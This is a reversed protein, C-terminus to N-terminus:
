EGPVLHPTTARCNPILVNRRPFRCGIVAKMVYVDASMATHMALQLLFRAANQSKRSKRSLYRIRVIGDNCKSLRPKSTESDQRLYFFCFKENAMCNCWLGRSMRFACIMNSFKQGVYCDLIPATWIEPRRALSLRVM